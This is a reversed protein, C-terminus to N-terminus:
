SGADEVAATHMLGAQLTQPFHCKCAEHMCEPFAKSRGVTSRINSSARKKEVKVISNM